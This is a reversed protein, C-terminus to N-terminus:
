KENEQINWITSLLRKGSETRFIRHFATKVASISASDEYLNVIFDAEILIQLDKGNIYSYTHHHAIIYCIRQIDQPAFELEKLIKEAEAPGLEEQLKGGCEGYKEEAPKIGIDHVLASCELIFQEHEKLNERLGIYRAFSHVKIFHQIRKPDGTFYEIMKETLIQIINDETM